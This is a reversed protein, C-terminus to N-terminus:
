YWSDTWPDYLWQHPDFSCSSYGYDAGWYCRTYDGWPYARTTGYGNYPQDVANLIDNTPGLWVDAPYGGPMMTAGGYTNGQQTNRAPASNTPGYASSQRQPDQTPAYAGATQGYNQMPQGYAPPMQGYGQAPQAYAPQQLYTPINYIPQNNVFYTRSSDGYQLYRIDYLDPYAYTDYGGYGYGSYDNGYNSANGYYADYMSQAQVGSIPALAFVALLAVIAFSYISKM